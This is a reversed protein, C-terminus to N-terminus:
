QWKYTYICTDFSYIELILIMICWHGMELIYHFFNQHKWINYMLAHISQGVELIYHFSIIHCWFYWNRLRICSAFAVSSTLSFPDTHDQTLLIIINKEQKFKTGQIWRWASCYPRHTHSSGSRLWDDPSTQGPSSGPWHRAPWPESSSLRVSSATSWRCVSRPLHTRTAYESEWALLGISNGQICAKIDKITTCVIITSCSCYILLDELM